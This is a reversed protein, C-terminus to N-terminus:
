LNRIQGQTKKFTNCSLNYDIRIVIALSKLKTNSSILKLYKNNAIVLMGSTRRGSIRSGDLIRYDLRM